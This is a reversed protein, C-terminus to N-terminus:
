TQGILYAVAAAVSAPTLFKLAVQWGRDSNKEHERLHSEMTTEMRSLTVAVGELKSNVANKFDDLKDYVRQIKVDDDM